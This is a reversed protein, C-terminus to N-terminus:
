EQFLEDLLRNRTKTTYYDVCTGNGSRMISSCTGNASRENLHGRGLYCHGLEHFVILEKRLQSSRRWFNEDIIVEKEEKSACLGIYNNGITSFSGKIHAAALDVIVGRAAAEEEFRQFYPCLEEAVNLYTIAQLEEKQCAPMFFLLLVLVLIECFKIFLLKRLAMIITQKHTLEVIIM